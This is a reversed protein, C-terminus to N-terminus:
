IKESMKIPSEKENNQEILFNIKTYFNVECKNIVECDIIGIKEIGLLKNEM